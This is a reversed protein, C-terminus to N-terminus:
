KGVMAQVQRNNKVAKVLAAHDLVTQNAYAEAWQALANDLVTSKGCYGAIKAADATRAHARALIAGCAWAYFNFSNGSLWEIPISGKMNKMQRVYFPRNEIQTWGLMVDTSSQLARQGMVIRKGEHAFEKSARAIFPAHAPVIAEKVQLFLPDQDGNGFLLVLYARTGVSGVGVVRHAVDAIRYRTLMFQRERPLTDAYSDLAEAVLKHTRADVPTLVPPNARFQWNGDARKAAVKDLLAINTQLAAKAVSKDIVAKSKSDMQVLPNQRGPYAHLYWTELVGLSQLRNMNFRYGRVCRHVAADRERRNMGNERAAVNVSATLRKLDWEWPGVVAEDFDNLDFVVDRQPTGYLGFNNVHADGDIVVAIGTVPTTALDHAMVAAAGRFFAFPSAIMRALRLPVLEEQRGRNGELTIEVAGPFDARRLWEGHSERPIQNRLDKGAARNEKMPLEARFPILKKVRLRSAFDERMSPPTKKITSRPM